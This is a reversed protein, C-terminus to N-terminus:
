EDTAESTLVLDESGVNLLNITPDNFQQQRFVTITEVPAPRIPV